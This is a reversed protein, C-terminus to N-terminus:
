WVIQNWCNGGVCTLSRSKHNLIAETTASVQIWYTEGAILHTLTNGEELGASYFSWEKSTNDFYWVTEVSEGLPELGNAVLVAAGTATGQIITFGVSATTKGIVVEVTHIGESLGPVVIGFSVTGQATTRPRVGPTLDIDGLKVSTVPVISNFGEGNITIMSGSAGSTESLTIVGEPVEHTISTDVKQGGATFSVLINNTSPIASGTPIRVRESFKGSADPTASVTSTSGTSAQYVISVSFSDGDDNRAPFNTGSIVAYTGVRGTRPLVDITRAPITVDVTGVRGMSDTVRLQKTGEETLAKDMPLNISAAWTGGNDVTVTNGGNIKSPDILVNGLRVEPMRQPGSGDPDVCCIRASATFGSAVVSVRQNALVTGPTVRISPGGIILKTDADGEMGDANRAEVVLKEIGQPVNNPITFTFSGNGEANVSGAASVPFGAITVRSVAAMSPFDTMQVQITDGVSGTEPSITIGAKLEFTQDEVLGDDYIMAKAGRGSIASGINGAGDFANVFNCDPMAGSCEADSVGGGTFPPNSVEVQCTGTDDGSVTTSCLNAEGPEGPVNNMNRDLWFTMTHGNKFGRGVLVLTDGQGGDDEGLEIIIPVDLAETEIKTLGGGTIAALYKGMKGETPNSLGADQAITVTVNDGMAIGEITDTDPNTDGLVIRLKEGSVTVSEPNSPENYTANHVRITVDGADVSGPFGFDELEIVLEDSGAFVEGDANFKISYRTGKGPDNSLAELTSTFATPPEVVAVEARVRVVFTTSLKEGASIDDDAMVTVVTNGRAIGELMIDGSSGESAFVLSEDHSTGLSYGTIMGAGTGSTFAKELESMEITATGNINVEQIPVRTGSLSGRKSEVIMVTFTAAGLDTGSTPGTDTCAQYSGTSLIESEQLGHDSSTTDAAEADVSAVTDTVETRCVPTVTITADGSPIPVEMTPAAVKLTLMGDVGVNTDANIIAQASGTRGGRTADDVTVIAESSSVRYGVIMGTGMGSTYVDSFDVPLDTETYGMEINPIMIPDEDADENRMTPTSRKLTLTINVSDVEDDDSDQAEVEFMYTSSNGQFAAPLGGVLGTFSLGTVAPDGDPSLAAIDADDTLTVPTGDDNDVITFAAAVNAATAQNEIEKFVYAEIDSGSLHDALDITEQHGVYVDIEHGSAHAPNALSMSGFVAALALAVVVALGILPTFGKAM